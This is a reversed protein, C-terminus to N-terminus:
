TIDSYLRLDQMIEIFHVDGRNIEKIIFIGNFGSM